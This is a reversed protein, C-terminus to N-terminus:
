DGVGSSCIWRLGCEQAGSLGMVPLMTPLLSVAGRSWRLSTARQPVPGMGEVTIRGPLPWVAQAHAQGSWMSRGGITRV